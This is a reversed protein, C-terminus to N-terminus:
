CCFGLLLFRLFKSTKDKVIRPKVFGSDMGGSIKINAFQLQENPSKNQKKKFLVKKGNIESM